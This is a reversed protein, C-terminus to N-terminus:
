LNTNNLDLKICQLINDPDCVAFGRDELEDIIAEEMGDVDLIECSVAQKNNYKVLFAKVEEYLKNM